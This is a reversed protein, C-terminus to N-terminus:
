RALLGACHGGQADSDVIVENLYLLVCYLVYASVPGGKTEAM